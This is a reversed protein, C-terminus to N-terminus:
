IAALCAERILVKRQLIQTLSELRKSYRYNYEGKDEEEENLNQKTNNTKHDIGNQSM